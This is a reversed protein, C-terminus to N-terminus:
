GGGEGNSGNGSRDKDDFEDKTMDEKEYTVLDWAFFGVLGVVAGIIYATCAILQPDETHSTAWFTFEVGGIAVLVLILYIM